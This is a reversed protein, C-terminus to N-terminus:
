QPNHLSISLSLFYLNILPVSHRLSIGVSPTLIYLSLKNKNTHSLPYIKSFLLHIIRQKLVQSVQKPYESFIDSCFHLVHM